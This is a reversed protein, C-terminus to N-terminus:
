SVSDRYISTCLDLWYHLMSIHAGTGRDMVVGLAEKM